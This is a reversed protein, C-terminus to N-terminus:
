SAGVRLSRVIDRTRTLVDIARDLDDVDFEVYEPGYELLASGDGDDDVTLTVKPLVENTQRAGELLITTETLIRTSLETNMASRHALM